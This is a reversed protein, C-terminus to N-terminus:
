RYKGAAKGRSNGYLCEMGILLPGKAALSMPERLLSVSTLLHKGPVVEAGFCRSLCKSPESPTEKAAQRRGVTPPVDVRKTVVPQRSLHLSIWNPSNWEQLQFSNVQSVAARRHRNVTLLGHKGTQM